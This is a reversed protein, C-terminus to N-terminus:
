ARGKGGVRVHLTTGNTTIEKETFSAPFPKVDAMASVSSLATVISALALSPSIKFM